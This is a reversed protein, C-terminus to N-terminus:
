LTGIIAGLVRQAFRSCVRADSFKSHNDDDERKLDDKDDYLLIIRSLYIVAVVMGAAAGLVRQALRSCM